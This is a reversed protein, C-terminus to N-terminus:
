VDQFCGEVIVVNEKWNGRYVQVQEMHMTIIHLGTFVMDM